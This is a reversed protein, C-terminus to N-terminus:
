VYTFRVLLLGGNHKGKNNFLRVFRYGEQLYELRACFTALRDDKGWENQYVSLRIFVIDDEVFDWSLKENWFFDGTPANVPLSKSQHKSHTRATKQQTSFLEGYVYAKIDHPAKPINCAGVVECTLQVNRPNDFSKLGRLRDPKLVWGGSGVFMAENFQLGKDYKQWNLASIQTGSGWHKIPSLNTSTVRTGKPYVRRLHLLSNSVLDQLYKSILKGVASESINYLIHKPELLQEILWGKRPKISRSYLGLVSLAPSIKHEENPNNLEAEADDSDSSNSSGTDVTEVTSISKPLYYEVMLLIRGRFDGPTVERPHEIGEIEKQVLKEGWVEKMIEVIEEQKSVGVHCELSVMVPWDDPSVADGIAVCVDRFSIHDSLTWGHTVIPGKDSQWVDIEVCRCRHSLVRTYASPDAKGLLQYSLLYTNHSTSIFYHSLPFSDDVEPPVVVPRLFVEEPLENESKLFEIIEESLRIDEMKGPISLNFHTDLDTSNITEEAEEQVTDDKSSFEPEM